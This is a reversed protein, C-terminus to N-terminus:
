LPLAYFFVLAKAGPNKRGISANSIHYFQAGIRGKNKLEYSLDMSSRFEIPFHLKKGNGKFYLGPAFSPTLIFSKKLFIDCALGSCFYLTAKDTGMLSVLPRLFPYKPIFPRYEVQVLANTPNHIIDYVGGGIHLLKKTEQPKEAGVLFSTSLISLALFLTKM